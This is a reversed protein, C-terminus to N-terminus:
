QDSALSSYHGYVQRIQVEALSLTGRGEIQVRLYRGHLDKTSLELSPEPAATQHSSWTGPRTKLTAPTDTRAFPSDSVFVWFDRLRDACCDARNWIVISTMPLSAGFDVQWWPDPQQELTHTVSHHYFNGDTNGDIALKANTTAAYTSSQSARWQSRDRPDAPAPALRFTAAGVDGWGEGPNPKIAHVEIV